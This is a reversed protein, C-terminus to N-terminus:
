KAEQEPTTPTLVPSNIVDGTPRSAWYLSMSATWSFDSGGGGRGTVPCFYERYDSQEILAQTDARIREALDTEGHEILGTAIMWNVMAWVPGRWYRISDFLEHNPDFSPVGREVQTLWHSLTAAMKGAHKPEVHGAFLALWSGSTLGTAYEDRRLDLTVYGGVDDSWLKEFGTDLRALRSAARTAIDDKGLLKAMAILDREARRLIANMGPEAVWFPCDRSITATDWNCDRGFKVLAMYHDYDNNKPREDENVIDTDRRHYTGVGATDIFSLPRDWDPLNDRGSEWPHMIAVIGLGDPDRADLFWQHWRDLKPLLKAARERTADIDDVDEALLRQIVTAAVPPQTIGSTPPNHAIDATGWQDPGPFYSKEVKWFIIHPVMGNDWQASLLSEVEQWARDPDFISFGLAVLASDWNWQFPYLKASPVTYGGRDNAILIDAARRNKSNLDNLTM